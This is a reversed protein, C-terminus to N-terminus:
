GNGAEIQKQPVNKMKQHKALEVTAGEGMAFFTRLTQSVQVPFKGMHKPDIGMHALLKLTEEDELITSDKMLHEALITATDKTTTPVITPDKWPQEAVFVSSETTEALITATDETTAVAITPDKLPREALVSASAETTTPVIAPRAHLHRYFDKWGAEIIKEQLEGVKEEMDKVSNDLKKIKRELTDLRVKKKEILATDKNSFKLIEWEVFMKSAKLVTYNRRYQQIALPINKFFLQLQLGNVYTKFVNPKKVYLYVAGVIASIAIAAIMGYGTLALAAAVSGVGVYLLVKLTITLATLVCAAAFRGKSRTLSVKLFGRDIADKKNCLTKLANRLSVSLMERKQIMGKNLESRREPGSLWKQLEEVGPNESPISLGAEQLEKVIAPIDPSEAKLKKGIATFFEEIRLLNQGAFIERLDNNMLSRNLKLVRVENLEVQRKPDSCWDKLQRISPQEKFPVVLGQKKLEGLIEQINHSPANLKEQISGIFEDIVSLHATFDAEYSEANMRRQEELITKIQQVTGTGKQLVNTWETHAKLGKRARHMRIAEGAFSTAIFVNGTMDATRSSANIIRAIAFAGRPVSLLSMGASTKLQANFEKRQATLWKNLKSIDKELQPKQQDPISKLANRKAKIMDEIRNLLMGTAVLIAGRSLINVGVAGAEAYAFARFVAEDFLIPPQLPDEQMQNLIDQVLGEGMTDIFKQISAREKPNLEGIQISEQAQVESSEMSQDNVVAAPTDALSASPPEREGAFVAVSAAQTKPCGVIKSAAAPSSVLGFYHLPQTPDLPSSGASLSTLQPM